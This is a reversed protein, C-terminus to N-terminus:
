PLYLSTKQPRGLLLKYSTCCSLLSFTSPLIHHSAMTRRAMLAGVNFVTTEGPCPLSCIYRKADSIRGNYELTAYDLMDLMGKCLKGVVVVFVFICFWMWLPVFSLCFLTDAHVLNSSASGFSCSKLDQAIVVRGGRRGLQIYSNRPHCRCM